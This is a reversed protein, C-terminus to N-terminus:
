QQQLFEISAIQCDSSISGATPEHYCRHRDRAVLVLM